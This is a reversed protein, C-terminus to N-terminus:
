NSQLKMEMGSITLNAEPFPTKIGKQIYLMSDDMNTAANNYFDIINQEYLYSYNPEYDQGPVKVIIGDKKTYHNIALVSGITKFNHLTNNKFTPNAVCWAEFISCENYKIENSFDNNEIVFDKWAYVRLCTRSINIFKCYDITISSHWQTIDYLGTDPSQTKSVGHTGVGSELNRFICNTIHTNRNPTKDHSSWVNNFGKTAWDPTDVNIAEKFATKGWEKANEFSCGDILTNDSADMEIFHGGNMNKFQINKITVNTTHGIVIGLGREVYDLDIIATGTGLITIDHEGTYGSYHSEVKAYKPNILQFISLSSKLKSTGTVSGKKIVVGDELVVTTNSSIYIPNTITYEGKKIVIKGGNNNACDEFVARFVYYDKTNENYTALKTYKDPATSDESISYTKTKTAADANVSPIIFVLALIAILAYIIKQM